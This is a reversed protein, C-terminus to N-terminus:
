VGVVTYDNASNQVIAGISATITVTDTAGNITVGPGPDVRTTGNIVIYCVFDVLGAPVTFDIGSATCRLTQDNDDQRLTRSVNELKATGMLNYDVNGAIVRITVPTAVIFGGLLKENSPGILRYSETSGGGIDVYAEGSAIFKYQQGPQIAITVSGSTITAM